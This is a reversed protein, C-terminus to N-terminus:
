GLFKLVFQYIVPVLVAPLLNGIRIKSNSLFNIGIAFILASGVLSVQDILVSSLFPKLLGALLTISGQYVLVPLASLYVGAGMTAAFMVSMIGDMVSKAFLTSYNGTLGDELSGVIAMAGVCFLLSATVFAEVFSDDNGKLHIKNKCFEGFNKLHKEINILEGVLGGVVLSVVLLMTNRTEFTKDNIYVMKCVVGCIGIFCTSLGIAKSVTENLREPIGKKLFLGLTAGLIVFTVNIITGLGFM